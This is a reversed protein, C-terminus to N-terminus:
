LFGFTRRAVLAWLEWEPAFNFAHRKIRVRASWLMPQMALMVLAHIVKRHGYKQKFKMIYYKFRVMYFATKLEQRHRESLWPHRPTYEFDWDGWGDLSDPVELGTARAQHFLPTGPYPSFPFIGNITVRPSLSWLQDILDITDHLQEVSEGPFGGMFSVVPTVDNEVCSRVGEVIDEVSIDKLIADLMEGNGSEGGLYLLECGSQKMKKFGEADFRRILDLRCSAVWKFKLGREIILEMIREARQKKIFFEDDVFGFSEVGYRKVLEELEDVVREPSKARWKRQTFEDIYCFACRFPCGRSTQYDFVHRINPYRNLDILDYAPFPLDDMDLYPRDAGRIFKGDREVMTGPLGAYDKGAKVTQVLELFTEEGEGIVVCDVMEHRATEEAHLTPHIGGWVFVTEPPLLERLKRARELGHKIQNGTMCSIGVVKIGELDIDELKDIRTDHIQTEIGGNERLYSALCLLAYPLHVYALSQVMNVQHGPFIMLVEASM